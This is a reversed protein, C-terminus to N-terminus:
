SDRRRKRVSVPGSFREMVGSSRLELAPKDRAIVNASDDRRSWWSAARRSILWIM